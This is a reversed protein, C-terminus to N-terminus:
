VERGGKARIFAVLRMDEGQMHRLLVHGLAQASSPLVVEGKSSAEVMRLVMETIEQHAHRHDDLAPYGIRAMEEEEDVFHQLVHDRFADVFHGVEARNTGHACSEEVAEVLRILDQHQADVTANGTAFREHWAHVTMGM